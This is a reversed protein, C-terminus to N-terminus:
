TWTASTFTGSFPCTPVGNTGNGTITFSRRSSPAGDTPDRELAGTTFAVSWLNSGTILGSGEYVNVAILTPRRLTRQHNRCTRRQQQFGGSNGCLDM